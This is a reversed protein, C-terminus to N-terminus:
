HHHEGASRVELVVDMPPANKFQLQLVPADGPEFAGMLGILMIHAGGPALSAIGGAPLALKDAPAMSAVGDENMTTIHLEASQAGAFSVSILADDAAAGNCLTLYAASTPQSARAARMWAGSAAVGSSECIAGSAAESKARDGSCGALCAVLAALFATRAAAIEIRM